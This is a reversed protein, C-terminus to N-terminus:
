LWTSSPKQRDALAQRSEQSCKLASHVNSSPVPAGSAGFLADRPVPTAPLEWSSGEVHVERDRSRSHGGMKTGWARGAPRVKLGERPGLGSTQPVQPMICGRQHWYALHKNGVNSCFVFDGTNGQGPRHCHCVTLHNQRHQGVHAGPVKLIKSLSKLATTTLSFPLSKALSKAEKNQKSKQKRKGMKKVQFCGM